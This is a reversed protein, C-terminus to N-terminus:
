EPARELRLWQPNSLQRRVTEAQEYSVFRKAQDPRADWRPGDEGPHWGAAYWDRGGGRWVIVWM